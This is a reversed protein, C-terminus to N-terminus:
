CEIYLFLSDIERAVRVSSPPLPTSVVHFLCLLPKTRGIFSNLGATSEERWRLSPNNLGM